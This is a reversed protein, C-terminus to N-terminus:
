CKKTSSKVGHKKSRCEKCKQSRKCRGWRCSGKNFANYIVLLNNTLSGTIRISWRIPSKLHKNKASSGLPLKIGIITTLMYFRGQFEFHIVWQKPDSLQQTVIHLYVEIALLFLAEKWDHVKLIQLFLSNYQTLAAYLRCAIVTLLSIMISTYNIFRESKVESFNSNYNKYAGSTKQLKLM